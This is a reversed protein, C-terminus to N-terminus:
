NLKQYTFARQLEFESFFLWWPIPDNSYPKPKSRLM